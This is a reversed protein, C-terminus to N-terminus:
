SARFVSCLANKLAYYQCSILGPAYLVNRHLHTFLKKMKNQSMTWANLLHIKRSLGVFQFDSLRVYVLSRQVSTAFSVIPIDVSFLHSM